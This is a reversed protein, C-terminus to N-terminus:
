AKIAKYFLMYREPYLTNNGDENGIEVYKLGFPASHGAKARVSGWTSTVPGNAYEIADLADHVIPGMQDLPYDSVPILVPFAGGSNPTWTMGAYAVFM